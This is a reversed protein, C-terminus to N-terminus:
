LAIRSLALSALVLMCPVIATCMTKGSSIFWHLKRPGEFLHICCSSIFMFSHNPIRIPLCPLARKVMEEPLKTTRAPRAIETDRWENATQRRNNARENTRGHNTECSPESIRENFQGPLTHEIITQSKSTENTPRENWAHGSQSQQATAVAVHMAADRAPQKRCPCFCSGKQFGAWRNTTSRVNARMGADSQAEPGEDRGLASIKARSPQSGRNSGSGGDWDRSVPCIVRHGQNNHMSM